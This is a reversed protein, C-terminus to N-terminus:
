EDSTQQPAPEAGTPIVTAVAFIRRFPFVTRGNADPPYAARLTSAYCRLFAAVEDQTGHQELATIFPRLASGRVWELVADPGHLVHLYTTEWVDSEAGTALL